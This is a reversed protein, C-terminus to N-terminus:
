KFIYSGVKISGDPCAIFTKAHKVIDEKLISIQKDTLRFFAWAMCMMMGSFEENILQNRFENFDNRKM